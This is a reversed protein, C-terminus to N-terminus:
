PEQLNRLARGFQEPRFTGGLSDKGLALFLSRKGGFAALYRQVLDKALADMTSDPLPFRTDNEVDGRKRSLGNDIHVLDCKGGSILAVVGFDPELVPSDNSPGDPVIERLGSLILAEGHPEISARAFIWWPLGKPLDECGLRLDRGVPEFRIKGPDFDTAFVPEYMLTKTQKFRNKAPRTPSAKSTQRNSAGMSDLIQWHSSPLDSKDRLDMRIQRKYRDFGGFAKAYYTHVSRSLSAVVSETIAFSDPLAATRKPSGNFAPALSTARCGSKDVMLLMGRDAEVLDTEGPIRSFARNVIYYTASDTSAAGYNWSSVSGDLTPCRAVVEPPLKPFSVCSTDYSTGYLPDEMWFWAHGPSFVISLVCAVRSATRKSKQIATFRTPFM